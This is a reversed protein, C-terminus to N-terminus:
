LALVGLVVGALGFLMGGVTAAVQLPYPVQRQGPESPTPAAMTGWGQYRVQKQKKPVEREQDRRRIWLIALAAALALAAIATLFLVLEL